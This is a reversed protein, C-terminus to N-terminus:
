AVLSINLLSPDTHEPRDRHGRVVKEKELKM